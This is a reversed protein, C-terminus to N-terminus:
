AREIFAEHIATFDNCNDLTMRVKVTLPNRVLDQFMARLLARVERDGFYLFKTLLYLAHAQEVTKSARRGHFNDLWEMVASRPTRVRGYFNM